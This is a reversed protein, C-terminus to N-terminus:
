AAQDENKQLHKLLIQARRRVHPEDDSIYHAVSQAFDVDAFAAALACFDKWGDGQHSRLAYIIGQLIRRRQADSLTLRRLRRFLRKKLYGSRFYYPDVEVYAMALELLESDGAELHELAETKWFVDLVSKYGHFAACAESWIKRDEESRGRHPLTEHIRAHLAAYERAAKQLEAKIDRKM